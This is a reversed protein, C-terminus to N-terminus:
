LPSVYSGYGPLKDPHAPNRNTSNKYSTFVSDIPLSRDDPSLFCLADKEDPERITLRLAMTLALALGAVIKVEIPCSEHLTYTVLSLAVGCASWFSAVKQQYVQETQLIGIMQADNLIKRELLPHRKWIRNHIDQRLNASNQDRLQEIEKGLSYSKYSAIAANCYMTLALAGMSLMAGTTVSLGLGLSTHTKLLGVLTGAALQASSVCGLYGSFKDDNQLDKVANGATNIFEFTNWIPYFYLTANECVNMAHTSEKLQAFYEAMTLSAGTAYVYPELSNTYRAARNGQHGMM